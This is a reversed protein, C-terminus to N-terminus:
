GDDDHERIWKDVVAEGEVAARDYWIDGLKAKDFSFVTVVVGGEPPFWVIIRLAVEPDYAHAVRWLEHRKAQRVRCLTATDASPKGPLEVLLDLMAKYKALRNKAATDGKQAKEQDWRIRAEFSDLLDIKM